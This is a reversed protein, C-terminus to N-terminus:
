ECGTQWHTGNMLQMILGYFLVAESDVHYSLSVLCFLILVTASCLFRKVTFRKFSSASPWHMGGGLCMKGTDRYPDPDMIQIAVLIYDNTWKGVCLSKRLTELLRHHNCIRPPPLLLLLFYHPPKTKELICLVLICSTLLIGVCKFERRRHVFPGCLGM